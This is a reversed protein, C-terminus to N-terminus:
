TSIVPGRKRGLDWFIGSGRVLGSVQRGLAKEIVPRWPVLTFERSREVLAYKGSSWSCPSVSTGSIREGSEAM